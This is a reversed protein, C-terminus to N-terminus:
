TKDVAGIKHIELCFNKVTCDPLNFQQDFVALDKELSPDAYADIVAVTGKGGTEPLHYNKKILAPSIGLPKIGVTGLIHIPPVAQFQDFRYAGEARSFVFLFTIIILLALIFLTIKKV